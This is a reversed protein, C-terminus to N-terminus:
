KRAKGRTRAGDLIRTRVDAHMPSAPPATASVWEIRLGANQLGLRVQEDWPTGLGRAMPMAPNLLLNEPPCTQFEASVASGLSAVAFRNHFEISGPLVKDAM